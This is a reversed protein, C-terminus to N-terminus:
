KVSISEIFSHFYISDRKPSKNLKLIVIQNNFTIVSYYSYENRILLYAKNSSTKKVTTNLVKPALISFAQKSEEFLEEESKNSPEKLLQINIEEININQTTDIISYFKDGYSNYRASDNVVLSSDNLSFYIKKDNFAPLHYEFTNDVSVCSFLVFVFVILLLKKQFLNRSDQQEQDQQKIKSKQKTKIM